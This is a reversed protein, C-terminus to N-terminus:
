ASLRVLSWDVTGDIAHRLGLVTPAVVVETRFQALPIVAAQGLAIREADQWHLSMTGPDPGSRAAALAADLDTAHLGLLNDPSTSRLLPDLYADASRYGGLWSLTFVQQQGRVLLHQYDDLSHPQVATPLGVAALNAAVGRMLATTAPSAEFDLHITPVKGDPYAQAVLRRAEAPDYALRPGTPGGTLEAPAVTNLPVADDPYVTRVLASRDVAHAIAQRVRVDTLPARDVRLGLLLEAQFPALADDGHARVAEGYRDEPIPAWDVHGAEFARYAAEDDAYPHLDVADLHIPPGITAPVARRVLHLVDRVGVGVQWSGTLPLSALQAPPASGTPGPAPAASALTALARVDVIGYAPAALLVPLQALPADLTIVVTRDDPARLGAVTPSRGDLYDRFGHVLELKLAAPSADGGAIVHTLSAVVDAAV